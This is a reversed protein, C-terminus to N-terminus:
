RRPCAAPARPTSSAPSTTASSPARGNRSRRPEIAPLLRQALAATSVIVFRAGSNSLIHRHDDSTNTTYAPVTVGGAALVALDAIVWEPRNEAVLAVRDGHELGLRRLGRALAVVQRRTEAWSTARWVAGDKVWLFPRESQRKAQEFFLVALNPCTRCDLLTEGRMSICTARSPTLKGIVM